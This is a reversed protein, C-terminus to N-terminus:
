SSEELNGFSYVVVVAAAVIVTSLVKVSERALSRAVHRMPHRAVRLVLDGRAFLDALFPDLRGNAAKDSAEM